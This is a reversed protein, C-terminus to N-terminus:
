ALQDTIPLKVKSVRKLSLVVNAIKWDDPVVGEDLSRRLLISLPTVLL